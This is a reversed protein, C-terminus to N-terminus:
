KCPRAYALAGPPAPFYPGAHHATALRTRFPPPADQETGPGALRPRDPAPRTTRRPTGAHALVWIPQIKGTSRLIRWRNRPSPDSAILIGHRITTKGKVRAGQQHQTQGQDAGMHRPRGDTHGIGDHH